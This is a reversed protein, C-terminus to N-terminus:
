RPHKCTVRRGEKRREAKGDDWREDQVTTWLLRGGEEEEEEEMSIKRGTGERKNRGNQFQQVRIINAHIGTVM